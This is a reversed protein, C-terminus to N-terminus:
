LVVEILRPGTEALGRQLQATLTECDTVRSAPVGM